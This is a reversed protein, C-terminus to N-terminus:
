ARALKRAAHLQFDLVGALLEADVRRHHEERGIPFQGLVGKRAVHDADGVMADKPHAVTERFAPGQPEGAQGVEGRFDELAHPHLIRQLGLVQLFRQFAQGLLADGLQEPGADARVEDDAGHALKLELHHSVAEPLFVLQVDDEFGAGVALRAPDQAFLGVELVEHAFM